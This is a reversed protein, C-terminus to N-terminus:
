RLSVTMTMIRDHSVIRTIYPLGCLGQLWAALTRNKLRPDCENGTPTARLACVRGLWSPYGMWRLWAPKSTARM